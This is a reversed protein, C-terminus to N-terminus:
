GILNGAQDFELVPPAPFCCSAAKTAGFLEGPALKNAQHVIWVHDQADVTVGTAWGIVWHNPLPKPWMPDVEFQPAEIRAAAVISQKGLVISGVGLAALLALATVASVVYRVMVDQGGKQRALPDSHHRPRKERGGPSCPVAISRSGAWTCGRSRARTAFTRWRIRM